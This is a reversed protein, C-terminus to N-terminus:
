RAYVETWVPRDEIVPVNAPINYRKRAYRKAGDLSLFGKVIYTKSGAKLTFNM